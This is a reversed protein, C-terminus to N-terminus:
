FVMDPKYASLPSRKDLRVNRRQSAVSTASGKKGKVESKDGAANNEKKANVPSENNANSSIVKCVGHRNSALHRSKSVPDREAKVRNRHGIVADNDPSSLVARPRPIQSVRINSREEDEVKGDDSKEEKARSISVIPMVDDPVHPKSIKAVLPSSVKLRQRVPSCSEHLSLSQIDKLSLVCAWEHDHLATRRDDGERVKVKPYM